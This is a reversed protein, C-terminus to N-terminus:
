GTASFTKYLNTRQAGTLPEIVYAKEILALMSVGWERKLDHLRGLTVNRLQARIAQTPMLFEAAFENAEHEMDETIELSHLCM